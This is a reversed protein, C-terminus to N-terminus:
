ESKKIEKKFDEAKKELIEAAKSIIYDPKLGSVSEVRFIIRTEDGRIEIGKCGEVCAKCLDCQMPDSIVPKGAKFKILGKPCEKLCKKSDKEDKVVIEPYYQYYANSAQWKSHNKGIGM